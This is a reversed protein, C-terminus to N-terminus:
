KIFAEHLQSVFSHGEKYLLTTTKDSLKVSIEYPPYQSTLHDFGVVAEAFNGEISIEVDKPLVIPSAFSHYTRNNIPAIEAIQLTELGPLVVSGGLSKNYASSGLTSSISLGNGRYTEFYTDNIFVKAILTHFPNEIRVENVAYLIEGNLDAELLRFRHELCRSNVLDYFLTDIEEVHYDAYFGLSGKNLGVFKVSDIRDIYTQVARLFTGDGGVFVVIDPNDQDFDLGYQSLKSVLLTSLESEEEIENKFFLAVKM